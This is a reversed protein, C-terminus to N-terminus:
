KMKDILKDLTGTLTLDGYKSNTLIGGFDVEDTGVKYLFGEIVTKEITKGTRELKENYFGAFTVDGYSYSKLEEAGSPPTYAWKATYRIYQIKGTTLFKGLLKVDMGLGGMTSIDVNPMTQQLTSLDSLDIAQPLAYYFTIDDDAWFVVKNIKNPVINAVPYNIRYYCIGQNSDISERTAKSLNSYGGWNEFSEVFTRIKPSKNCLQSSSDPNKGLHKYGLGKLFTVAEPEDIEGDKVLPGGGDPDTDVAFPQENILNGYLREETFLKKIREVEEKIDKM